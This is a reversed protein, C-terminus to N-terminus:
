LISEKSYASLKIRLLSLYGCNQNAKEDQVWRCHLESDDGDPGGLGVNGAAPVLRTVREACAPINKKMEQFAKDLGDDAYVGNAQALVACVLFFHVASIQRM